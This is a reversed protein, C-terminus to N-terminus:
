YMSTNNSIHVYSIKAKTKFLMLSIKKPCEVLLENMQTSSVQFTFKRRM